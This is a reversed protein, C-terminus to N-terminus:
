FGVTQQKQSTKEENLERKTLSLKGHKKTAV